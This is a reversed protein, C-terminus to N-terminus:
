LTHHHRHNSSYPLDSDGGVVGAGRGYWICVSGDMPEGKTFLCFLPGALNLLFALSLLVATARDRLRYLRM